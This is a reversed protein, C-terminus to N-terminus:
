VLSFRVRLSNDGKRYHLKKIRSYGGPRDQYRPGLQNFLKSLVEVKEQNHEVEVGKKSVLYQLALSYFHKKNTPNQQAKKAWTILKALLKTLNNKQNHKALSPNTEISEYLIADAVLNKLVRRRWATDKGPKLIYSM